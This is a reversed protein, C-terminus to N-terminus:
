QEIYDNQVYNILVSDRPYRQSDIEVFYKKHNLHDFIANNKNKNPIDIRDKM